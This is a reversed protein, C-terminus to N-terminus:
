HVKNAAFAIHAPALDQRGNLAKDNNYDESLDIPPLSVCFPPWEMAKGMADNDTRIGDVTGM